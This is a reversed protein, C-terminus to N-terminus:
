SSATRGEQLLWDVFAPNALAPFGDVSPGRQRRVLDIAASATYGMEMLARAVVVGSRNLGETCHVLVRRGSSVLSAIFTALQPVQPDVRDDDDMPFSVYLRGLPVPPTWAWEWDELDVIVDVGLTEYETSADLRTGILLGPLVEFVQM